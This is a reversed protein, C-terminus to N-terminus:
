GCGPPRAQDSSRCGVQSAALGTTLRPRHRLIEEALQAGQRQLRRRELLKLGLADCLDEQNELIEELFAAGMETAWQKAAPAYESLSLADLLEELGWVQKGPGNSASASAQARSPMPAYHSIPAAKHASEHRDALRTGDSLPKTSPVSRGAGYGGVPDPPRLVQFSPAPAAWDEQGVVQAPRSRPVKTLIQSLPKKVVPTNGVTYPQERAPPPRSPKPPRDEQPWAAEGTPQVYSDWVRDEDEDAPASTVPAAARVQGPLLHGPGKKFLRANLDDQEEENFIQKLAFDIAKQLRRECQLCEELSAPGASMIREALRPAMEPQYLAIREVLLAEPGPPDEPRFTPSGWLAGEEPEAQLRPASLCGRGKGLQGRGRARGPPGASITSPGVTQSTKQSGYLAEEASRLPGKAMNDRLEAALVKDLVRNLVPGPTPSSPHPESPAEDLLAQLEDHPLELLRLVLRPALEPQWPAVRRYLEEELTEGEEDWEVEQDEAPAPAAM